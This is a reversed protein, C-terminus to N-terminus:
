YFLQTATAPRDPVAWYKYTTNKFDGRRLQEQIEDLCYHLVLLWCLSRGVRCPHIEKYWTRTTIQLASQLLEFTSRYVLGMVLQSNYIKMDEGKKKARNNYLFNQFFFPCKGFM